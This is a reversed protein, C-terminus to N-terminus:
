HDRLGCDVIVVHYRFPSDRDIIEDKQKNIKSAHNKLVLAENYLIVSCNKLQLKM